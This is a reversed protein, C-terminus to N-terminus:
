YRLKFNFDLNINYYPDMQKRKGWKRMMALHNEIAFFSVNNSQKKITTSGDHLLKAYPTYVIRFGLAQVRLCLDVDNYYLDFEEDFGHIEEFINKRILYAHV